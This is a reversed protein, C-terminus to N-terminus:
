VNKELFAKFDKLSALLGDNETRKLEAASHAGNTVALSLHCKANRGTAIDVPTDGICVVKKPDTIAFQKMAKQILYPHPRSKVVEDSAISMDIISDGISVHYEDLGEDWGLKEIYMDALDRNFGTTLVVKVDNDRLWEFVELAGEMPKIDASEIHSEMLDFFDNYTEEVRDELDPHEAGLKKRWFSTIAAMKPWGMMSNVQAASVELGNQSLAEQLCKVVAANDSVTTGTMDFVVLSIKESLMNLIDRSFLKQTPLAV